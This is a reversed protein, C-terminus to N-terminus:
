QANLDPRLRVVTMGVVSPADVPLEVPEGELAQQVYAPLEPRLGKLIAGLFPEGDHGPDAPLEGFLDHTAPESSPPDVTAGRFQEARRSAVLDLLSRAVLRAGMQPETLLSRLPPQLAAENVRAWSSPSSNQFALHELPASKSIVRPTEVVPGPYTTYSRVIWGPVYSVGANHRRLVRYHDASDVPMAMRFERAGLYLVYVDPVELALASRRLLAMQAGDRYKFDITWDAHLRKAQILAGFAEGSDDVWWWLWDAGVRGEQHKNFVVSVFQPHAAALLIETVTEEGWPFGAEDATGMHAEARLRARILAEAVDPYVEVNLM